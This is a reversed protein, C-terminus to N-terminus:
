LEVEKKLDNDDVFMGSMIPIRIDQRSSCDRSIYICGRGNLTVPVFLLILHRQPDPESANVAKVKEDVIAEIRALADAGGTLVRFELNDVFWDVLQLEGSSTNDAFEKSVHPYSFVMKGTFQELRPSEIHFKRCLWGITEHLDMDTMKKLFRFVDGGEGCILCKYLRRSPSVILSPANDKHFPCYAKYNDGSPTLTLFEGIVDVINVEARIREIIEQLEKNKLDNKKM